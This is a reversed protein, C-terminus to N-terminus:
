NSTFFLQICLVSFTVLLLVLLTFNATITLWTAGDDTPELQMLDTTLLGAASGLRTSIVHHSSFSWKMVLFKSVSILWNTIILTENRSFNIRASHSLSILQIPYHSPAHLKSLCNDQRKTWEKNNNSIWKMLQQVQNCEPKPFKICTHLQKCVPIQVKQCDRMHVHTHIAEPKIWGVLLIIM